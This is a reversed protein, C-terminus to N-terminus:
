LGGDLKPKLNPFKWILCIVDALCLSLVFGLECKELHKQM